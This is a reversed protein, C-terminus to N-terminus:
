LVSEWLVVEKGGNMEQSLVEVAQQKVKWAQFFPAEQCGLRHSPRFLM